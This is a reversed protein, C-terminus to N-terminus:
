NAGVSLIYDTGGSSNTIMLNAVRKGDPSQWTYNAGEPTQAEMLSKWGTFKEKYFSTVQTHPDTSSFTANLAPQGNAGPVVMSGTVTAGPYPPVDAPWAEPLTSGGIQIKEGDAGQIAIQGGNIEINENGPTSAEIAQETAEEALKTALDESLGSCALLSLIVPPAMLGLARKM